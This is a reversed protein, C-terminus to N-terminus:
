CPTLMFSLSLPLIGVMQDNQVDGVKMRPLIVIVGVTQVMDTGVNRVPAQICHDDCSIEGIMSLVHVLCGVRQDHRQLGDVPQVTHEPSM